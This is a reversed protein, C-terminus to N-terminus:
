RHSATLFEPRPIEPFLREGLQPLDPRGAFLARYGPEDQLLKWRNLVDMSAADRRHELGSFSSGGGFDALEGIGPEPIDLGLQNTLAQRYAPESFWRNYNVILPDDLHATERLAERCHTCWAAIVEEDIPFNGKFRSALWNFPDRLVVVNRVRESRGRDAADFPVEGVRDLPFDELNFLYADRRPPLPSEDLLRRESSELAALRAHPADLLEDKRVHEAQRILQRGNFCLSVRGGFRTEESLHGRRTSCFLSTRSYSCNNLLYVPGSFHRRLWDMVAHHGSRKMAFVRFEFDNHFRQM